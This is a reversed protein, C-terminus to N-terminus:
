EIIGVTLFNTAVPIYSFQCGAENVQCPKKKKGDQFFLNWFISKEQTMVNKQLLCKGAAFTDPPM